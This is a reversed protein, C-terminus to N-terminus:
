PKTWCLPQGCVHCDAKTEEDHFHSDCLLTDYGGSADYAGPIIRRVKPDDSGCLPCKPKCISCDWYGHRVCGPNTEWEGIDTAM